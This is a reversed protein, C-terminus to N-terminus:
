KFQQMKNPISLQLIIYYFCTLQGRVTAKISQYETEQARKYMLSFM